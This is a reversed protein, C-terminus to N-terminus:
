RRMLHKFAITEKRRFYSYGKKKIMKSRLKEYESKSGLLANEIRKTVSSHKKM